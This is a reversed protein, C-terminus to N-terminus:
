KAEDTTVKGLFKAAVLYNGTAPDADVRVIEAITKLLLQAHPEEAQRVTGQEDRWGTVYIKIFLQAAPPFSIDSAFQVGEASLNMLTGSKLEDPHTLATLPGYEIHYQKSLRKRTRRDLM